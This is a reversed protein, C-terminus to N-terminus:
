ADKSSVHRVMVSGPLRIEEEGEGFVLDVKSVAEYGFKEYYPRNKEQTELYCAVHCADAAAGLMTMVEKCYGKGQGDPDSAVVGVYFHPETPGYQRHWKRFMDDMSEMKKTAKEWQKMKSKDALVPPVGLPDKSMSMYARVGHFFDVVKNSKRETMVNYERFVIVAQVAGSSDRIGVIMGGKRLQEEAFFGLGFANLAQRSSTSATDEGLIEPMTQSLISNIVDSGKDTTKGGFADGIVKRAQYFQLSDPHLCIEGVSSHQSSLFARAQDIKTLKKKSRRRISCLPM